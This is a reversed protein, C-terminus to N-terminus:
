APKNREHAWGLFVVRQNRRMFMKLRDRAEEPTLDRVQDPPYVARTVDHLYAAALGYHSRFRADKTTPMPAGLARSHAAGDAIRARQVAIYLLGSEFLESGKTPLKVDAPYLFPSHIRRHEGGVYAGELEHALRSMLASLYDACTVNGGGSSPPTKWHVFPPAPGKPIEGTEDAPFGELEVEDMGATFAFTAIWGATASRNKFVRALLKAADLAADKECLFENEADREDSYRDERGRGHWDIAADGERVLQALLRRLKGRQFECEGLVELTDHYRANMDDPNSICPLWAADRAVRKPLNARLWAEAEPGPAALHNPAYRVFRIVQEDGPIITAM